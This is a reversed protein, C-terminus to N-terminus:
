IFKIYFNWMNPIYDSQIARVVNVKYGDVVLTEIKLPQQHLTIFSVKADSKYLLDEKRESYGGRGDFGCECEVNVIKIPVVKGIIASSRFAATDTM